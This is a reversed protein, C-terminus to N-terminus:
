IFNPTFAIEYVSHTIAKVEKIDKQIEEDSASYVMSARTDEDELLSVITPAALFAFFLFLVIHVFFRM